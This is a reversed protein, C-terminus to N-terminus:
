DAFSRNYQPAGRLLHLLEECKTGGRHHGDQPGESSAITLKGKCVQLALYLIEYEMLSVDYNQMYARRIVVDDVEQSLNGDFEVEGDEEEV